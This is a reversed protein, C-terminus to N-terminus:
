IINGTRSLESLPWCKRITSKMTESLRPCWNLNIQSQIGCITTWNRYSYVALQLAPPLSRLVHSIPLNGCPSSWNHSSCNKLPRFTYWQSIDWNWFTNKKILDNLPWALKTFNCIFHCYFNAFGLFGHLDCLNHPNPWSMVAQVKIPNMTVKGEIIMLGLYEIQKQEFECKKFRLYLNHALLCWLVEHTVAWHEEQIISYILIDDLYVAVKDAAVLNVFITNM